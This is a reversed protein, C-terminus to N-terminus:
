GARASKEANTGVPPTTAAEGAASPDEPLDSKAVWLRTAGQVFSSAINMIIRVPHAQSTAGHSYGPIMGDHEIGGTM